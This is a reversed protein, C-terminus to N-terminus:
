PLLAVTGLHRSQELALHVGGGGIGHGFLVLGVKAGVWWRTPAAMPYVSAGQPCRGLGLLAWGSWRLDLPWDQQDTGALEFPEQIGAPILGRGWGVRGWGWLLPDSLWFQEWVALVLPCGAEGAM